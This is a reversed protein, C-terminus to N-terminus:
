LREAEIQDMTQKTLKYFFKLMLFGIIPIIAPITSFAHLIARKLEPTIVGAVYGASTLALPILVSKLINALKVTVSSISMILSNLDEGTKHRTYIVNDMYLSLEFPQTMGTLGHVVVNLGMFVYAHNQSFRTAFLFLGVLPYIMLLVKRPDTIKTSLLRVLFSGALSAIGVLLMHIPILSADEAVCRYYYVALSPLVLVAVNSTLDIIVTILLQPNRLLCGTMQRLTFQEEEGVAASKSECGKSLKFHILNMAIFFLGAGLIIVPYLMRESVKLALATVIVPTLYNGLLKGANAGMMKQSTLRTRSSQDQAIVNILSLNAAYSMNYFARALLYGLTIIVASLIPRGPFFCFHLTFFIAALPPALLLYSRLKGWRMVPILSFIFGTILALVLDGISMALMSVSIVGLPLYAVDTMFLTLYTNSITTVIGEGIDATGWLLFKHGLRGNIEKREM